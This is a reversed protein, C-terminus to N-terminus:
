LLDHLLVWLVPGAHLCSAVAVDLLDAGYTVPTALIGVTHALCVQYLNQRIWKTIWFLIHALLDCCKHAWARKPIVVQRCLIVPLMMKGWSGIPLWM